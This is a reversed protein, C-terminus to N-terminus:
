LWSKASLRSDRENPLEDNMFIPQSVTALDERVLGSVIASSSSPLLRLEVVRCMTQEHEYQIRYSRILRVHVLCKAGLHHPPLPVLQPNRQLMYKGLAPLLCCRCHLVSEQQLGSGCISVAPQRAHSIFCCTNALVSPVRSM